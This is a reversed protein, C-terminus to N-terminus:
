RRQRREGDQGGPLAAALDDRCPALAVLARQALEDVLEVLRLGRHLADGAGRHEEVACARGSRQGHAGADLVQVGQVLM